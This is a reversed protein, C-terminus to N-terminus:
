FLFFVGEHHPDPVVDIEKSEVLQLVYEYQDEPAELHQPVDELEGVVAKPPFNDVVHAELCGEDNHFFCVVRGSRLLPM